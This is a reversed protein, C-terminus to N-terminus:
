TGFISLNLFINDLPWVIRSRYPVAKADQVNEAIIDSIAEHLVFAQDFM